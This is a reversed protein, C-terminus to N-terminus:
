LSLKYDSDRYSGYTFLIPLPEPHHTHLLEAHLVQWEYYNNHAETLVCLATKNSNYLRTTM